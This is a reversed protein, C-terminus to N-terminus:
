EVSEIATAASDDYDIHTSCRTDASRVSDIHDDDTSRRACTRAASM